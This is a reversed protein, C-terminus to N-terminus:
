HTNGADNVVQALSDAIRLLDDRSVAFAQIAYRYRGETWVLVWGPSGNGTLEAAHGRITVTEPVGGFHIFGGGQTEVSDAFFEVTWV